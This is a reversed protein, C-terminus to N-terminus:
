VFNKFILFIERFLLPLIQGCTYLGALGQEATHKYLHIDAHTGQLRPGPVRGGSTSKADLKRAWSNKELGEM